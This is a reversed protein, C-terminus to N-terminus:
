NINLSVKYRCYGVFFRVGIDGIPGRAAPGAQVAGYPRYIHSGHMCSHPFADHDCCIIRMMLATSCDVVFASAKGCLGSSAFFLEDEAGYLRPSAGRGVVACGTRRFM